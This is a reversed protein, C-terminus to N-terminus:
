FFSGLCACPAAGVHNRRAFAGPCACAAGAHDRRALAESCACPVAGVHKRRTHAVSFLWVAMVNKIRLVFPVEKPCSIAAYVNDPSM